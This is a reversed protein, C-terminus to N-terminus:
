DSKVVNDQIMTQKEVEQEKGLRGVGLLSVWCSNHNPETTPAPPPHQARVRHLTLDCVHVYLIAKESLYKILGRGSLPFCSNSSTKDEWTWLGVHEGGTNRQQLIKTSQKPLAWLLISHSHFVRSTERQGRNVAAETYKARLAFCTHCPTKLTKRGTEPEPFQGSVHNPDPRSQIQLETWSM